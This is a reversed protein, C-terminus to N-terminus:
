KNGKVDFQACGASKGGVIRRQLYEDKVSLNVEKIGKKVGIAQAMEDVRDAM